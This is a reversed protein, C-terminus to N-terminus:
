CWWVLTQCALLAGCEIVPTRTLQTPKLPGVDIDGLRNVAYISLALSSVTLTSLVAHYSVFAVRTKRGHYGAASQGPEKFYIYRLTFLAENPWDTRWCCTRRKKKQRLTQKAKYKQNEKNNTKEERKNELWYITVWNLKFVIINMNM